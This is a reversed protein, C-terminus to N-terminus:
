KQSGLFDALRDTIEALDFHFAQTGIAARIEALLEGAMTATEPVETPNATQVTFESNMAVVDFPRPVM